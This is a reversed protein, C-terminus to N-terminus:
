PVSTFFFKIVGGGGGGTSSASASARAQQMSQRVSDIIIHVNEDVMSFGVVLLERELLTQQLTGRLATREDEYRLYDQRTLVISRPKTVCGHLKVLRPADIPMAALRAADWPLRLVEERDGHEDVGSGVAEEYLDDYNTTFAPVKMAGLLCHSPTYRGRRLVHQILANLAERGGMREEVLMPQDLLSLLQMERVEHESFGAGRALETLLETWNPLGSPVSVGSGFLLALRGSRVLGQLRGIQEKHQPTLMWFPGEAFPCCRERLVNAVYYARKDTTCLGVDVAYTNAARYCASLVWPLLVDDSLIDARDNRGVGPITLAILPRARGFVSQQESHKSCATDLSM